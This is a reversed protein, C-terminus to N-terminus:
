LAVGADSENLSESMAETAEKLRSGLDLSSFVFYGQINKPLLIEFPREIIHEKKVNLQSETQLRLWDTHRAIGAPLSVIPHM